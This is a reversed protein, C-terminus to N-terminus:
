AAVLPTDTEALRVTACDSAADSLSPARTLERPRSRCAVKDSSKLLSLVGAAGKLVMSFSSAAM